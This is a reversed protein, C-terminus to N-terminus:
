YNKYHYYGGYRNPDVKEKMNFAMRFVSPIWCLQCWTLVSAGILMLLVVPTNHETGNLLDAINDLIFLLMIALWLLVRIVLYMIGYVIKLVLQATSKNEFVPLLECLGIVTLFVDTMHVIGCSWPVYAQGYPGFSVLIMAISVLHHVTVDVRYKAARSRSPAIVLFSLFLQAICHALEIMLMAPAGPHLSRLREHRNGKLLEASNFIGFGKLMLVCTALQPAVKYALWTQDRERPVKLWNFVPTIVYFLAIQAAVWSGTYFIDFNPFMAALDVM